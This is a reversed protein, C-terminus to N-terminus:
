REAWWAELMAGAEAHAQDLRDLVDRACSPCTWCTGDQTVIALRLVEALLNVGCFACGTAAFQAPRQDPRERRM